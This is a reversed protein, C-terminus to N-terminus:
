PSVCPLQHIHWPNRSHNNHCCWTQYSPPRLSFTYHTWELSFINTTYHSSRPNQFYPSIPFHLLDCENSRDQIETWDIFPVMHHLWILIQPIETTPTHVAMGMLCGTSEKLPFWSLIHDRTTWLFLIIFNQHKYPDQHFFFKYYDKQRLLIEVIWM